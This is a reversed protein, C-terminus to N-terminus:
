AARQRLMADAAEYAQQAAEDPALPPGSLLIVSELAQSAFFDRLTLEEIWPPKESLKETM